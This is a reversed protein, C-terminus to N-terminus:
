APWPPAKKIITSSGNQGHPSGGRFDYYKNLMIPVLLQHLPHKCACHFAIPPADRSIKIRHLTAPVPIVTIM